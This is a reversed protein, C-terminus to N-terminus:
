YRQLKYTHHKHLELRRLYGGASCPPATGATHQPWRGGMFSRWRRGVSGARARPGAATVLWACRGGNHLRMLLVPYGCGLSM